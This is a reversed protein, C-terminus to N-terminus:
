FAFTIINFPYLGQVSLRAFCLTYSYYNTPKLSILGFFIHILVGFTWDSNRYCFINRTTNNIIVIYLHRYIARNYRLPTIGLFGWTIIRTIHVMRTSLLFTVYNSQHAMSSALLECSGFRIYFFMKNRNSIKSKQTYSDAKTSPDVRACPM